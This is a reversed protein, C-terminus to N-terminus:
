KIEDLEYVLKLDKSIRQIFDDRAHPDDCVVDVAGLADELKGFFGALKFLGCDDDPVVFFDYDSRNDGRARSGFLYVRKMDYAASIEGVVRRLEEFTYERVDGM